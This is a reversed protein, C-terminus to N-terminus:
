KKDNKGGKKKPALEEVLAREQAEQKIDWDTLDKNSKLNVYDIVIEVMPLEKVWVKNLELYSIQSDDKYAIGNLSDLYTKALNDLDPKQNHSKGAYIEKLYEAQKGKAWRFSSKPLSCHYTIKMRIDGTYEAFSNGFDNLFLDRVEMKAQEYEKPYYAKPFGGFTSIRPRPSPFPKHYVTFRIYM